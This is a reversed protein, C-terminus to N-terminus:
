NETNLLFDSKTVSFQVSSVPEKAEPQPNEKVPKAPGSASVVTLWLCLLVMILHIAVITWFLLGFDWKRTKHRFLQQAVLAGSWGGALELWHLTREPVRRGYRSGALWKDLGYTFFAAISMVVTLAAYGTVPWPLMAFSTAWAVIVVVLALLWWIGGAWALWNMRGQLDRYQDRPSTSM